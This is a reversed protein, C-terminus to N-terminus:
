SYTRAAHRPKRVWCYSDSAHRVKGEFSQNGMSEVLFSVPSGPQVGGVEGQNMQNLRMEKLDAITFFTPSQLTATVTQGIDVARNVVM